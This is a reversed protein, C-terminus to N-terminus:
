EARGRYVYLIQRGDGGIAKRKRTRDFWLRGAKFMCVSVGCVHVQDRLSEVLLHMPPCIYVLAFPFVKENEERSILKVQRRLPFSASTGFAGAESTHSHKLTHTFLSLSLPFSLSLASLCLPEVFVGPEGPGDRGARLAGAGASLDGGAGQDNGSTGHCLGCSFNGGTEGRNYSKNKQESAELSFFFVSVVNLPYASSM